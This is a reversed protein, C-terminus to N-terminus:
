SCLEPQLANNFHRTYYRWTQEIYMYMIDSDIEERAKTM